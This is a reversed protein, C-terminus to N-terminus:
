SCDQCTNSTPTNRQSQHRVMWCRDCTFEDAQKIVVKVGLDEDLLDFEPVDFSEVDGSDDGLDSGAAAAAAGPKKGLNLDDDEPEEGPRVRPTDYDTAM